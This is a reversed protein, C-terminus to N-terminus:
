PQRPPSQWEDVRLRLEFGGASSAILLRALAHPDDGDYAYEIQWEGQRWRLPRGRDDRVLDANASPTGRLWDLLHSLPLVYGLVSQLLDDANGASRTGESTTLRAGEAGSVVEALAQGFPSSILLEDGDPTHRWSIRGSYGKGEHRVSFRGVLLFDLSPERAAVPPATSSPAVSACGLIPLLIVLLLAWSPPAAAVARRCCLFM